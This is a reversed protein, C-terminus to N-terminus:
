VYWLVVIFACFGFVHAFMVIGELVPLKRFMVTNFFISIIVVAWALLATQWTHITYIPNALVIIAQVQQGAAYCTGALSAHWGLVCLYGVTYSLFKQHKPPAVADKTLWQENLIGLLRVSRAGTINGEETSRTLSWKLGSEIGSRRRQPLLVPWKLWLKRHRNTDRGLVLIRASVSCWSSCAAVLSSSCGSAGQLAEMPYRCSAM